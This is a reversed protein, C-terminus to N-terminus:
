IKLDILKNYNIDYVKKTDTIYPICGKTIHSTLSPIPSFCKNFVYLLNIGHEDYVYDKIISFTRNHEKYLSKTFALTYTTNKISRWHHTDSLIIQSDYVFRVDDEYLNPYDIPHCFYNPYKSLFEKIKILSNDFHLYDDECIYIQDQIENSNIYLTTEYNIKSASKYNFTKYKYNVKYNKCLKELQNICDEGDCFFVIEDESTMQRLLSTLCTFILESMSNAIPCTGHKKLRYDYLCIKYLITM